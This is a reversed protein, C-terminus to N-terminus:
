ALRDTLNLSSSVLNIELPLQPPAPGSYEERGPSTWGRAPGCSRVALPGFLIAKPHSRHWNSRRNLIHHCDRRVRWHQQKWRPPSLPAGQLGRALHHPPLTRLLSRQTVGLIRPTLVVDPFAHLTALFQVLPQSLLLLLSAPGRVGARGRERTRRKSPLD